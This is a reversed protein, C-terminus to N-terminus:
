GQSLDCGNNTKGEGEDEEEERRERGSGTADKHPKELAAAVALFDRMQVTRSVFRSEVVVEVSYAM